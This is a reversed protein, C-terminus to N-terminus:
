RAGRVQHRPAEQPAGLPQYHWVKPLRRHVPFAIAAQTPPPLPPTMNSDSITPPLPPTMNCYSITTLQQTCHAPLPCRPLRM